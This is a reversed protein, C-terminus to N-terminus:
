QPEIANQVTSTVQNSAGQNLIINVTSVADFITIKGNGDLDAASFIFPSPNNGLIYNVIQVADFISVKGDGNADGAIADLVTLQSITNSQEIAKMPTALEINKLTIDYDGPTVDASIALTLYLLTGETGSFLSNDGSFTVLRYSGDGQQSPSPDGQNAKRDSLACGLLTVGEPLEVDFQFSTIGEEGNDLQVPLILQAGRSASIDEAYLMKLAGPDPEPTNVTVACQATLNTGDATTATITATGAAVATVLGNEDVTAITPDSSTWTVTKDTADEPLVTATLQDQVAVELTTETKNLAVSTAPISYAAITGFANWQNAAKYADLSASPVYLTATNQPVGSFVSNGM